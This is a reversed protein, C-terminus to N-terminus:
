GDLWVYLTDDIRAHITPIVRPTGQDTVWALHCILAEDLIAHITERDYAGREPHRRLQTRESPPTGIGAV